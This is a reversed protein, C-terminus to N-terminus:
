VSATTDASLKECAKIPRLWVRMSKRTVFSGAPGRAVSFASAM